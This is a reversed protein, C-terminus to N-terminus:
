QDKQWINMLKNRNAYYHERIDKFRVKSAKLDNGFMLKYAPYSGEVEFTATFERKGFSYKPKCDNKENEIRFTKPEGDIKIGNVYVTLNDNDLVMAKSKGVGNNWDMKGIDSELIREQLNFRKSAM